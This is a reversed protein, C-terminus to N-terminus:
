AYLVRKKSNIKRTIYGAIRNVVVDSSINTVERVKRKNEEFDGSFEFKEMLKQAFNKIYAPKVCGM